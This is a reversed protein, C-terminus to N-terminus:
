QAKDHKTEWYTINGEQKVEFQGLRKRFLDAEEKSLQIGRDPICVCGTDWFSFTMTGGTLHDPVTQERIIKKGGFTKMNNLKFDKQIEILTLGSILKEIM